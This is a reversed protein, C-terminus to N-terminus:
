TVINLIMILLTKFIIYAIIILELNTQALLTMFAMVFINFIGFFLDFYQIKERKNTKTLNSNTESSM